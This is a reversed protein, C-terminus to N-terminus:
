RSPLAEAPEIEGRLLRGTQGSLWLYHDSPVDSVDVFPSEGVPRRSACKMIATGEDIEDFMAIYLSQAGSTKAAVAQKWFFRGGLRPIADLKAEKARMKSLNHWSFGPFIVPLYLKGQLRCWEIDGTWVERAIREVDANQAMRGVTWPSLVEAEQLLTHFAKDPLADRKAERWFTPIGLMLAAGSQKIERILSQWEELAAPQHAFGLGYIAVLPKGQHLQACGRSAWGHELIRRWDKAIEPFRAPSFNTLDYMVTLSRGEARASEICLELVRDASPRQQPSDLVTGFRQLFAGDIGYERMWRFHRRVTDPHVSSFLEAPSQDEFRFPSVFRESPGFESLEPWLDFTCSGPGMKAGPGYHVWSMGSGDGPARFWGQYGCFVKGELSSFDAARCSLVSLILLLFARFLSM